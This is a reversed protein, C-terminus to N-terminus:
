ASFRAGRLDRDGERPHVTGGDALRGGRAAEHPGRGGACPHAGPAVRRRPGVQADPDAVLPPLLQRDVEVGLHHLSFRVAAELDAERRSGRLHHGEYAGRPPRASCNRWRRRWGCSSSPNPTTTTAAPRGRATATRSAPMPPSP